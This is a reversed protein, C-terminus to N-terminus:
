GQIITASRHAAVMAVITRNGISSDHLRLSAFNRKVTSVHRERIEAQEPMNKTSFIRVGEALRTASTLETPSSHARACSSM